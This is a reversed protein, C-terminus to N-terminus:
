KSRRQIYNTLLEYFSQFIIPPTVSPNGWKISHVVGASDSEVITTMNGPTSFETTLFGAEDLYRFFFLASDATTTFLDTVKKEGSQIKLWKTVKGESTISYGNYAGSVGGGNSISIIKPTSTTSSSSSGCGTVTFIVFSLLLIHNM